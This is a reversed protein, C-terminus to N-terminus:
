LNAFRLDLFYIFFGLYKRKNNVEINLNKYINDFKM